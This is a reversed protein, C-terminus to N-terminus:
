SLQEIKLQEDDHDNTRGAYHCRRKDGSYSTKSWVFWINETLIHDQCRTLTLMYETASNLGTSQQRTKCKAYNLNNCLKAINM